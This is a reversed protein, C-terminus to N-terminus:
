ENECGRKICNVFDATNEYRESISCWYVFPCRNGFPKPGPEKEVVRCNLKARPADTEYYANPCLM